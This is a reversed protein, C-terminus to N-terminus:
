DGTFWAYLGGQYNDTMTAFPTNEEYAMEIDGYLSVMDKAWELLVQSVYSYCLILPSHVLSSRRESNDPRM